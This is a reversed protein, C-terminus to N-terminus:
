QENRRIWGVTPFAPADITRFEAGIEKIIHEGLQQGIMQGHPTAGFAAQGGQQNFMTCVTRTAERRTGTTSKFEPAESGATAVIRDIRDASM